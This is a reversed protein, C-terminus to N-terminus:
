KNPAEIRFWETMKGYEFRFIAQARPDIVVPRDDVLMLGVPNDLPSGEFAVEPEGGDTVKWLSKGYGDSVWATGQGDVVVQHPFDFIRKSVIVEREGEKTFRQLQEDDQSIVWLRDQEDVFLGRPNAKAFVEPTSDPLQRWIVRRELDAIYLKGASDFALDMPIGILGDITPTPVAEGSESVDIRYVERTATDGVFLVGDPSFALCRCANMAERFRGSGQSFITLEDASYKWVGPLNRDVVFVDGNADIAADLPYVDLKVPASRIETDPNQRDSTPPEQAVAIGFTSTLGLFVLFLVLRAM